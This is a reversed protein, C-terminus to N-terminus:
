KVAAHCKREEVELMSLGKFCKDKLYVDIERKRYENRFM